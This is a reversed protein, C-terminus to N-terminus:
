RGCPSRDEAVSLLCLLKISSCSLYIKGLLDLLITLIDSVKASVSFRNSVEMLGSWIESIRAPLHSRKARISAGELRKPTRNLKLHRDILSAHLHPRSRIPEFDLDDRRVTPLSVSWLSLREQMNESTRGRTQPRRESVLNEM